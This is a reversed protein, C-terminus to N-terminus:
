NKLIFWEVPFSEETSYNLFIRGNESGSFIYPGGTAILDRLRKCNVTSVPILETNKLLQNLSRLTLLTSIFKRNVGKLITTKCFDCCIKDGINTLGIKDTIEKGCNPCTM